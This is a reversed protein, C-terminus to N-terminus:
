PAAVAAAAAPRPPALQSPPPEARRRDRRASQKMNRAEYKARHSAASRQPVMIHCLACAPGRDFNCISRIRPLANVNRPVRFPGVCCCCWGFRSTGRIAGATRTGSMFMADINHGLLSLSNIIYIISSVASHRVNSTRVLCFFRSYFRMCTRM